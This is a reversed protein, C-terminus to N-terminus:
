YDSRATIRAAPRPRIIVLAALVAALATLGCVPLALQFDGTLAAATGYARLRSIQL